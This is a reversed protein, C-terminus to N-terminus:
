QYWVFSDDLCFIQCLDRTTSQCFDLNRNFILISEEPARKGTPGLNAGFKGLEMLVLM